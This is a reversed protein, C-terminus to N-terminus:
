DVQRNELWEIFSEPNMPRGFFYGQISDIGQEELFRFQADTEVGEALVSINLSHGLTIIAKLIAVDFVGDPLGDVFAKDLKFCNVPLHKLHALSSYGTGFDDISLQVGMARLRNLLDVIDDGRELAGETIEIELVDAPLRYMELLAAVRRILDPGLQQPAINVAVRPIPVKDARWQAMQELARNLVWDGVLEILGLEEALPIFENPPVLGKNPHRWRVLAEVGILQGSHSNVQPQFYLQLENQEVARRLESAIEFKRHVRDALAPKFFEVTSPGCEKARMLATDAAQILGRIDMADDPYFSIGACASPILQHNSLPFPRSLDAFVSRLIGPIANKDKIDEVLMLFEDSGWRFLSADDPRSESLRNALTRLFDDGIDHGQSDNLLKFRDIDLLIVALGRGRADSIGRAIKELCLQRNPLGTLTDYNRAIQLSEEAQRAKSADSFVGVYNRITQDHDRVASIRGRFPFIEGTKRRNWIEGEWDGDSLVREWLAQYFSPTHIGSKLFSPKQGLAEESRYGTIECFSRNVSLIRTDAGTIIVAESTQDLVAENTGGPHDSEALQDRRRFVVLIGNQHHNLRLPICKYGVPLLAGDAMRFQDNSTEKEQGDRLAELLPCLAMSYAVGKSNAPKLLEHCNRGIWDQEARYGLIRIAQPNVYSILGADNVSFLGDLKANLRLGNRQHLDELAMQYNHRQTIDHLTLILGTADGTESDPRRIELEAWVCRGDDHLFSVILKGAQSVSSSVACAKRFAEADKKHLLEEFIVGELHAVARGVIHECASSAYRILGNANLHVIMTSSLEVLNRFNQEREVLSQQSVRKMFARALDAALEVELRTWPASKNYYTQTWSEFSQRPSIRFGTETRDLEKHPKGAWHRTVAVRGRCWMVYHELTHNLPALLIGCATDSYERADSYLSALEDTHFIQEPQRLRLAAELQEIQSISPTQGYVYRCGHSVLIVGTAGLISMLETATNISLDAFQTFATGRLFRNVRDRRKEEDNRQLDSLKISITKGILEYLERERLTVHKPTHHHCALMGWLKGNQILSITLTAAVRMNRLYELHVPSLSRYSSFTLDLPVSVAREDAPDIVSPSANVDAIVRTLNRTYLARAQSPIDSAPFRNGLYSGALESRSEAIVEGDWNSDFQYMMVRDYGTAARVLEVVQTTYNGLDREADLQWLLDRTPVFIQDFLESQDPADVEVELLWYPDNFSVAADHVRVEGARIIRVKALAFSRWDGLGKLSRIQEVDSSELFSDLSAGLISQQPLGFFAAANDSCFRIVFDRDLALLVGQPQISGVQHIPERECQKLAEQILAEKAADPIDPSTSM